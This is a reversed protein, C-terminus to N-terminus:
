QIHQDNQILLNIYFLDIVLHSIFCTCNNGKSSPLVNQEWCITTGHLQITDGATRVRNTSSCHALIDIQIESHVKLCLEVNAIM